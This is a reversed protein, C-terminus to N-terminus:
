SKKDNSKKLLLWSYFLATGAFISRVLSKLRFVDFWRALFDALSPANQFKSFVPVFLGYSLSAEFTLTIFLWCGLLILVLFLNKFDNKVLELILFPTIWLLWQPHYHTSSFLLLMMVLFYQWISDKNIKKYGAYLFLFFYLFMFIYIGEAGSVPLIMHLMKQSQPSFLCVQRFIASPLFPLITLFYPLFGSIGIKIKEKLDKGLWIIFPLLLLPYMKLAGGIGLCVAGAKSKNRKWILWLGLVVFFLSIVDFQGVMFSTYFSLPNFFWLFFIQWRKKEEKFFSALLFAVGIDFILYPLKFVFLTLFIRFNSYIYPYSEVIWNFWNWSLLPRLILGFFGFTFYTLPPYTFFNVGYNSVIPDTKPLYALYDYINFVRKFVFLNQAIFLSWIDSHATIAALFLKLVIGLILFYLYKREIKYFWSVSKRAFFM